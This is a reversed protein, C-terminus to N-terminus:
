IRSQTDADTGRTTDASGGRYMFAEVGKSATSNM